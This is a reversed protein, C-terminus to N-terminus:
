GDGSHSLIFDKRHWGNFSVTVSAVRLASELLDTDFVTELKLHMFNRSFVAVDEVNEADWTQYVRVLVGVGVHSLRGHEELMTNQVRGVAPDNIVSIDSWREHRRAPAVIHPKAVRTTVREASRIGLIVRVMILLLEPIEGPVVHTSIVKRGDNIGDLILSASLLNGVDTM